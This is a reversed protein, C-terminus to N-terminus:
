EYLEAKHIVIVGPPVHHPFREFGFSELNDCCAAHRFSQFTDGCILAKGSTFLAISAIMRSASSITTFGTSILCSASCTLSPM